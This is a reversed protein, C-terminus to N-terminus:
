KPPCRPQLRCPSSARNRCDDEGGRSRPSSQDSASPQSRPNQPRDREGRAIDAGGLRGSVLTKIGKAGAKMTNRIAKKQAVRFSVRNEISHAISDAVLQAVLDPNKVEVVSIQVNEGVLKSVEKKVNEIETGSQGIILGPRSANIFVETRKTNREIIVNAIGATKFKKMLYKRIKVDNSLYKSFEKNDAYWKSEWDKNIGIRLGIPSVKQGM